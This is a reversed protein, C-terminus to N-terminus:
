GGEHAEMAPQNDAQRKSGDCEFGLIEAHPDKAHVAIYNLLEEQDSQRFYDSM